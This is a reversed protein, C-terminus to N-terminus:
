PLLEFRAQVSYTLKFTTFEVTPASDSSEDALEAYNARVKSLREVSFDNGSYNHDTINICVGRKQGIASALEDACSAANRIAEQRLRSRQEKLDSRTARTLKVSSLALPDLAEFAKALQESSNLKLEYLASMLSENRRFYSSVNDALRLSSDTNIGVRKLAAIMERVKTQLAIKGKSDSESITISLTFENPELETEAYGNVYIYNESEQAQLSLTALMACLILIARRM